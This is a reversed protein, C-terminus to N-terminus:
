LNNVYQIKTTTNIDRNKDPHYKVQMKRKADKKSNGRAILINYEINLIQEENLKPKQTEKVCPQHQEEFKRHQEEFKRHQEEFKRHQEEFKRHQEEFKRHQEEFRDHNDEDRKRKERKDKLEQEKRKKENKKIKKKERLEREKETEKNQSKATINVYCPDLIRYWHDENDVKIKEEPTLNGKKKLKAIATLAKRAKRENKKHNTETDDVSLNQFRNSM